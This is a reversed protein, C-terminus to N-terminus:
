IHTIELSLPVNNTLLLWRCLLQRSFRRCTSQKEVFLCVSMFVCICTHVLVYACISLVTTSIAVKQFAIEKLENLLGGTSKNVSFKNHCLAFINCCVTAFYSYCNITTTTAEAYKNAHWCMWIVAFIRKDM